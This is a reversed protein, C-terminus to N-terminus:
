SRYFVVSVVFEKTRATVVEEDKLFVRSGRERVRVTTMRKYFYLYLRRRTIVAKEKDRERERATM